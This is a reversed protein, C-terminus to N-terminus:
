LRNQGNVLVFFLSRGLFNRRDMEPAKTLLKTWIDCKTAAHAHFMGLATRFRSREAGVLTNGYNAM